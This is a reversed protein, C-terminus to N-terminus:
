VDFGLELDVGELETAARHRLDLLYRRGRAASSHVNLQSLVAAQFLVTM